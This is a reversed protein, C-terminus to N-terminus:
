GDALSDNQQVGEGELLHKLLSPSLADAFRCDRRRSSHGADSIMASSNGAVGAGAKGVVLLLNAAAGVWTVKPPPPVASHAM